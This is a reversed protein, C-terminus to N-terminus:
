FYFEHYSYWLRWWSSRYNKISGDEVAWRNKFLKAWPAAMHLASNPADIHWHVDDSKVADGWHIQVALHGFARGERLAAQLLSGGAALTPWSSTSADLKPAFDSTTKRRSWSITPNQEFSKSPDRLQVSLAHVLVFLPCRHSLCSSRGVLRPCSGSLLAVWRKKYWSFVGGSWFLKLPESMVLFKVVKVWRGEPCAKALDALKEANAQRLAEAFALARGPAPPTPGQRGSRPNASLITSSRNLASPITHFYGELYFHKPLTPHDICPEFGMPVDTASWEFDEFLYDLLDKPLQLSQIGVPGLAHFLRGPPRSSCPTKQEVVCPTDLTLVKRVVSARSGKKTRVLYAFGFTSLAEAFLRRSM